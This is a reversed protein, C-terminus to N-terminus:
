RAASALGLAAPPAQAAVVPNAPAGPAAPAAPAGLLGAIREMSARAIRRLMAEDAVAWADRGAKGGAEEGVIRLARRQETDYIDFVWAIHARGRLVHAALYGRARYQSPGERSVVAVNRADAEDSLGQVLKHFVGVPPGDISEFAITAGTAAAATPSPTGNHACGALALAALVGPWAWCPARAGRRSAATGM